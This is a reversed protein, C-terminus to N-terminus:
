HTSAEPVPYDLASKKTLKLRGEKAAQIAIELMRRFAVENEHALELKRKQEPTLLDSIAKLFPEPFGSRWNAIDDTDDFFTPCTEVFLATMQDVLNDNPAIPSTTVIGEVLRRYPFTEEFTKFYSFNDAGLLSAIRQDIESVGSERISKDEARSAPTLGLDSALKSADYIAQNREVLLAKFNELATPTLHLRRFLAAYTQDLEGKRVVLDLEARQQQEPTLPPLPPLRAADAELQRLVVRQEANQKQLTTASDRLRDRRLTMMAIQAEMRAATARQRSLGIALGAVLAAVLALQLKTMLISGATAALAVSTGSLASATVAAATGAPAASVGNQTLVLGLAAATSTIGSKALSVQLKSLAREVRMRAANENLGLKQGIEAFPRNNFFRLLVAERDSDNLTDLAQDLLPALRVWDDAPSSHAPDFDLAAAKEHNARRQEARRLSAAAWRTSQHLWGALLPHTKLRSAKRALDTFVMQTVEQARHHDGGMRRLAASYVLDVHLDVLRAFAPESSNEVYDRLLETDDM